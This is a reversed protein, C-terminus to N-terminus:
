RTTIILHPHTAGEQTYFAQCLVLEVDLSKKWKLSVLIVIICLVNKIILRLLRLERFKSRFKLKLNSNQLNIFTKIFNVFKQKKKM